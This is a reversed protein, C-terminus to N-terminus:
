VPLLSVAYPVAKGGRKPGNKHGFRAKALLFRLRIATSLKASARFRLQLASRGFAVRSYVM